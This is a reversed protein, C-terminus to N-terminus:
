MYVNRLVQRKLKRSDAQQQQVVLLLERIVEYFLKQHEDAKWERFDGDLKYIIDQVEM